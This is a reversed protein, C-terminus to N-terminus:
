GRLAGAEAFSYWDEEGVVIHDLVQIGLIDGAAVLRRTLAVDQESPSADGSPHNHVFLVAHAPERVAPAFAERPHVLTATLSGEAIRVDRLLRHRADLLAVLFVERREDRLAARYHRYAESAAHLAAGREVKELATRRGLELAALLPVARRDGIGPVAAIEPLSWRALTRLSGAARLLREASRTRATAPPRPRGPRREPRATGAMVLTLLEEDTLAASGTLATRAFAPDAFPPVDPAAIEVDM